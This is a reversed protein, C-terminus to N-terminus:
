LRQQKATTMARARDMRQQKAAPMARDRYFYVFFTCTLRFEPVCVRASGDRDSVSFHDGDQAPNDAAVSHRAHHRAQVIEGPYWLVPDSYWVGVWTGKEVLNKTLDKDSKEQHGVNVDGDHFGGDGKKQHEEQSPIQYYQQDAQLAMAVALVAEEAVGLRMCSTTPGVTLELSSFFEQSSTVSYLCYPELKSYTFFAVTMLSQAQHCRPMITRGGEPPLKPCVPCSTGDDLQPNIHKYRFHGFESILVGVMCGFTDKLNSGKPRRNSHGITHGSAPGNAPGHAPGSDHDSAPGNAKPKRNAYGNAHGIAPGPGHAPGNASNGIADAGQQPATQAVTHGDSIPRVFKPAMFSNKGTQWLASLGTEFEALELREIKPAVLQPRHSAPPLREVLLVENNGLEDNGAGEGAEDTVTEEADAEVPVM